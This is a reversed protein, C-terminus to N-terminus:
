KEKPIHIILFGNKHEASAEEVVIKSPIEVLVSFRGFPIEMQHFAKRVESDYRVGSVSLLNDQIAVEVDDEEIGAIELRVVFQDVTEFVDTPPNWTHSRVHWNVSSYIERRSEVLVPFSKRVITPM